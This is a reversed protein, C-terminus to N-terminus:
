TPTGPDIGAAPSVAFPGPKASRFRANIRRIRRLGLTQELTPTGAQMGPIPASAPPGGFLSKGSLQLRLISLNELDPEYTAAKEGMIRALEVNRASIAEFAGHVLDDASLRIQHVFDDAFAGIGDYRSSPDPHTAKILVNAVRETHNGLHERLRQSRHYPREEEPYGSLDPEAWARNSLRAIVVLALDRQDQAEGRGMIGLGSLLWGDDPNRLILKPNISGHSLGCQAAVSLASGLRAVMQGLERITFQDSIDSLKEGVQVPRVWYVISGAIATEVVPCLPVEQVSKLSDLMTQVRSVAEDTKPAPFCTAIGSIGEHPGGPLGTVKLTIQGSPADPLTLRELISFSGIRAQRTTVEAPAVGTSM